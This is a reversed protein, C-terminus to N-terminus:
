WSLEVPLGDEGWDVWFPYDFDGFRRVDGEPILHKVDLKLQDKMVHFYYLPPGDNRGFRNDYWIAFKTKSM